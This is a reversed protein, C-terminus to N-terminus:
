QEEGDRRLVDILESVGDPAAVVTSSFRPEDQALVARSIPTLPSGEISVASLGVARALCLGAAGDWLKQDRRFFWQLNPLATLDALDLCTRAMDLTQSTTRIKLSIAAFRDATEFSRPRSTASRTASAYPSRAHAASRGVPVGNIRPTNGAADLQITISSGGAGLEPAFILCAEPAGDHLVAVVTCYERSAPNVFEKTGDIPDIVWACRNPLSNSATRSYNTREEAVILPSPEFDHILTIIREQIRVDAETLLSGDPKVSVRRDRTSARFSALIPGVEEVIAKWLASIDSMSSAHRLACYPALPCPPRPHGGARLRAALCSSETDTPENPLPHPV